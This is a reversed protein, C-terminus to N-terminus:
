VVTTDQVNLVPRGPGQSKRLFQTMAITLMRPSGDHIGTMIAVAVHQLREQSVLIILSMFDDVYVEVMYLFGNDGNHSEPLTEYEVDGVVYKHFKHPRLMNVPTEIYENAVDWVTETAACFYPPSEVWGMQLLSPVVLQIPKGEEQPLVYAFNWEEGHECDLRWFGDQIDWKAMFFNADEKAESFALILHLLSERIQVIVGKPTSKRWQIM